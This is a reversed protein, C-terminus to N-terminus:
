PCILSYRLSLLAFATVAASQLQQATCGQVTWVYHIFYLLLVFYTSEREECYGLMATSCNQQAYSLCIASEESCYLM